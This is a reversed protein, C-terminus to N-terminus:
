NKLIYPEGFVILLACCVSVFLALGWQSDQFKPMVQLMKTVPPSIAFFVILTVFLLRIGVTKITCLSIYNSSSKSEAPDVVPPFLSNFLTQDQESLPETDTPLTTILTSM